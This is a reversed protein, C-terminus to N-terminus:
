ITSTITVQESSAVITGVITIRTRSADRIVTCGTVEIRKEWRGVAETVASIIQARVSELPKDMYRYVNSGFTPRLPDSGPVTTLIIYICQTIDDIGEVIALPNDISVQWNRTDNKKTM